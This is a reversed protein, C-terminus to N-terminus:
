PKAAFAAELAALRAELQQNKAHLEQCVATLLPVLHAQDLGQHVPNGEADVEDKAGVVAQPVVSQVEHAIFGEVLPGSPNTTFHFRCPKLAVLRGLPDAIPQVDTKIRYDSSTAYVLPTGGAAAQRIGGSNVGAIFFSAFPANASNANHGVNWAPLTTITTATLGGNPAVNSPNNFRFTTVGSGLTAENTASVASPTSGNGLCTLNTGTLATGGGATQGLVTNTIQLGGPGRGVSLGQITTAPTITVSTATAAGITIAGASSRDIVSANLRPGVLVASGALSLTATGAQLSVSTATLSGATLSTATTTGINMAGATARDITAANLRPTVNVATALAPGISLPAAAVQDLATTFVGATAAFPTVVTGITNSAPTQTTVTRATVYGFSVNTYAFTGTGAVTTGAAALSSGVSITADGAGFVAPTSVNVGIAGAADSSNSITSYGLSFFSSGSVEVTSAAGNMAIAAGVVEVTGATQEIAHLGGEIQTRNKIWTYQGSHRLAVGTTTSVNVVCNDLYLSSSTGTNFTNSNVVGDGSADTNNIYCGAFRMRGAGTGSFLVAQSAFAGSVFLNAFFHENRNINLGGTTPSFTISGIEATKGAVGNLGVYSMTKNEAIVLDGWTGTAKPGVMITDGESAADFAAQLSAYKGGEVLWLVKQGLGVVDPDPYTGSLYTPGAAGTPPGGSPASWTVAGAGDTTLVNGNSGDTAPLTYAGLDLQDGAPLNQTTGNDVVLPKQVAM